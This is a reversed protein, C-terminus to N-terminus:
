IIDIKIQDIDKLIKITEDDANYSTNSASLPVKRANTTEIHHPCLWSIKGNKLECLKLDISKEENPTYVKLNEYESIFYRRLELYSESLEIQASKSEIDSILKHGQETLFIQLQNALNGNKIINMIRALYSCFRSNLDNLVLYTDCLHWGEDYECMPRLCLSFENEITPQKVLKPHKSSSSPRNSDLQESPEKFEPKHSKIEELKQRDILDIAFLKPYPKLTTMKDGLLTLNKLFKRQTLEFLETFAVNNDDTEQKQKTNDNIQKNKKNKELEIKVL